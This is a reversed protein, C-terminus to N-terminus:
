LVGAQKMVRLTGQLDSLQGLDLNPPTLQNIPIQGSPGAIGRALPYETTQQAFYNQSSNSLLYNILKEVDQRQDTTKLVAVGAVNVMSGADRRTYHVAVPFNADKKKFQSLYYNNALGVQIEGRGIAELIATNKGYNKTGNAKMARLWEVTKADGNLKRMATVFSQFSGNTPAWGVKGRWKPQTLDFISKPLDAGKVLKTNYNVVRARGSIGIWNGSPSRYRSDVKNLITLPIGLTRGRQQLAGLAGADQAFFMDARSNNGEELLAIALEATDGYRVQINLNLDKKAKEILPGILKQDRGSYIILTKSQANIDLATGLVLASALAGVGLKVLLNQM